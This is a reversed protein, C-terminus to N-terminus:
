ELLKKLKRIIREERARKFLYEMDLEQNLLVAKADELDTESGYAIKAVVVDEAREIWAPVGFLRARRRKKISAEDLSSYVGKLDLRYPSNKLFVTAHTKERLAGQIEEIKAEFGNKLLSEVVRKMENEKLQVVLDLDMTSRPRGYYIAAVGGIIVYKVKSENLAKLAKKVFNEFSM